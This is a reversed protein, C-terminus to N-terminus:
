SSTSDQELSHWYPSSDSSQGSCQNIGMLIKYLISQSTLSSSHPLGLRMSRKLADVVLSASSFLTKQLSLLMLAPMRAHQIASQNRVAATREALLPSIGSTVSSSVLRLVNALVTM